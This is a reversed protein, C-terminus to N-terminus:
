SERYFVDVGTIDSAQCEDINTKVGYLFAAGRGFLIFVAKPAYASLWNRFGTESVNTPPSSFRDGRLNSVVNVSTVKM